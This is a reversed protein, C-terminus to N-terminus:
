LSVESVLVDARHVTFQRRTERAFVCWRACRLRYWKTRARFPPCTPQEDTVRTRESTQCTKFRGRFMEPPGSLNENGRAKRPLYVPIFLRQTHTRGKEGGLLRVM